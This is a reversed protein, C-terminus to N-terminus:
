AYFVTSIFPLMFYSTIKVCVCVCVCMKTASVLDGVPPGVLITGAKVTLKTKKKSRLFRM